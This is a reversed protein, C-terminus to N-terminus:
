DRKTYLWILYTIPPVVAIVLTKILDGMHHNLFDAQQGLDMGELSIALYGCAILSSVIVIFICRVSNSM